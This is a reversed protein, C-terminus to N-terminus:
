ISMGGQFSKWGKSTDFEDTAISPAEGARITGVSPQRMFRWIIFVAAISTTLLILFIYKKM